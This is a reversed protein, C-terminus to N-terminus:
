RGASPRWRACIAPIPPCWPSCSAREACQRAYDPAYVITCGHDLRDVQLLEIATRVNTWPM